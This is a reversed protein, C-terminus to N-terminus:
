EQFLKELVRITETPGEKIWTATTRKDLFIEYDNGGSYCKDGFFYINDYDKELFQLCYTKDWGHPFCDVSTQGGISFMLIDNFEEKLEEAVKELVRHEKNFEVFVAREEFTVNRGSPAVNILGNRYEIFLGRKIPM